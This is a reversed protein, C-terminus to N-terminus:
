YKTVHVKASRMVVGARVLGLSVIATIRCQSGEGQCDVVEHLTPDWPERGSILTFGAANLTQTLQLGVREDDVTREAKRLFGDLVDVIGEALPKQLDGQVAKELFELRAVLADSDKKVAKDNLLRRKFLDELNALRTTMETLQNQLGTHGADHEPVQSM